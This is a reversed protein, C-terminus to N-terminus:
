ASTDRARAVELIEMVRLGDAATALDPEASGRAARAFAELQNVLSQVLPNGTRTGRVFSRIGGRTYRAVTTRAVRVEFRERYPRNGVCEIDARGRDDALEIRVSARLRAVRGEVRAAEAGTLWLALDVLHTGLDLLIEDDVEYPRWSSRRTRLLLSLEVSKAASAADRLERVAPEFRRNFGIWPPPELGALESAERATPAPPKEVLTPVGAEAALRADPLHAAAPTALVLVDAARAALLEAASSFRAVDPAVGRCREGVPDAVAALRLGQARLAAPVYGREALRGCGILGLRLERAMAACRRLVWPSHPVCGFTASDDGGHSPGHWSRALGQEPTDQMLDREETREGDRGQQDDASM